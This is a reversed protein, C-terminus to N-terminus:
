AYNEWIRTELKRHLSQTSQVSVNCDYLKRGKKGTHMPQPVNITIASLQEQNHQNVDQTMLVKFVLTAASVATGQTTTPKYTNYGTLRPTGM